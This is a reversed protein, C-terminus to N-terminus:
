LEYGREVWYRWDEIARRTAEDIGIGELQSLPVALRRRGWPTLVFM